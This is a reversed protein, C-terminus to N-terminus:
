VQLRKTYSLVGWGVSLWGALTLPDKQFRGFLVEKDTHSIGEQIQGFHGSHKENGLLSVTHKTGIAGATPVPARVLPPLLIVPHLYSHNFCLHGPGLGLNQNLLCRM